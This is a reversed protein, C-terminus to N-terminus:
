VVGSNANHKTHVLFSNKRMTVCVTFILKILSRVIKHEWNTINKKTWKQKSTGNIYYVFICSFNAMYFSSCKFINNWLVYIHHNCILKCAMLFPKKWLASGNKAAKAYLIFLFHRLMLPYKVMFLMEEMRNRFISVFLM